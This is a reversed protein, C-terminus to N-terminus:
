KADAKKPAHAPRAARPVRTAAMADAAAGQTAGTSSGDATVDEHLVGVPAENVPQSQTKEQTLKRSLYFAAAGFLALVM